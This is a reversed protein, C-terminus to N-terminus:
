GKKEYEKGGQYPRLELQVKLLLVSGKCRVEVLHLLREFRKSSSNEYEKHLLLFDFVKRLHSRHLCSEQDSFLPQQLLDFVPIHLLPLFFELKRLSFHSRQRM